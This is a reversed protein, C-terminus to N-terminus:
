FKEAKLYWLDTTEGLTYSVKLKSCFDEGDLVLTHYEGKEGCPDMGKKESLELIEALASGDLKKGVWEAGFLKKLVCTIIIETKQDVLEKLYEKRDKNWLPRVLKLGLESCIREMWNEHFSDPVGLDGTVIGEVNLSKCMERLTEKYSVIFPDGIKRIQYPVKMARAQLRMADQNHCKFKEGGTFTVLSVAQHGMAKAKRYAHYSDKGGTWLVLVRMCEEEDM